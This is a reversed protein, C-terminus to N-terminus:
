RTNNRPQGDKERRAYHRLSEIAEDAYRDLDEDTKKIQEEVDKEFRRMKDESGYKAVAWFHLGFVAIVCAAWFLGM